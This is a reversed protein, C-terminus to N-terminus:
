KHNREMETGGNVGSALGDQVGVGVMLMGRGDINGAAGNWRRMLFLRQNSRWRYGELEAFDKIAEDGVEGQSKRMEKKIKERVAEQKKLRSMYWCCWGHGWSWWVCAASAAVEAELKKEFLRHSQINWCARFKPFVTNKRIFIHTLPLTKKKLM